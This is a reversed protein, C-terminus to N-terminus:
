RTGVPSPRPWSRRWRSACGRALRRRGRASLWWRRRGAPPGGGSGGHGSARPRCSRHGSSRQAAQRRRARRSRRAGGGPGRRRAPIEPLACWRALLPLADGVPQGARFHAIVTVLALNEVLDLVATAVQAWALGGVLRGGRAPRIAGQRELVDAVWLYGLGIALRISCCSSSISASAPRPATSRPSPLPPRATAPRVPPPSPPRGGPASSSGPTRGRARWSSRSSGGATPHRCTGTTDHSGRWCSLPRWPPSGSRGGRNAPSPDLRRM